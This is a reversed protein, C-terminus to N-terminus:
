SQLIGSALQDIGLLFNVFTLVFKFLLLFPEAVEKRFSNEPPNLRSDSLECLIETVLDVLQSLSHVIDPINDFGM